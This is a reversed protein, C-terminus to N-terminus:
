RRKPQPLVQYGAAAIALTMMRRVLGNADVPAYEGGTPITLVYSGDRETVTYARQTAENLQKLAASMATTM